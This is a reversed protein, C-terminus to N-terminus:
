PTKFIDPVLAFFANCLYKPYPSGSTSLTLSHVAYCEQAKNTVLATADSTGFSFAKNVIAGMTLGPAASSIGPARTSSERWRVVGRHMYDEHVFNRGGPNVVPAITFLANEKPVLSAVARTVM